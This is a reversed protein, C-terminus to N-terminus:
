QDLLNLVQKHLHPAGCAIVNGESELTLEKGSWDTIIGGAGKIIPALACFDHPKLDAELVIDVTGNALLGYSYCDGGYVTYRAKERVKEFKDRDSGKFLNPSTTCLTTEELKIRNRTKSKTNNFITDMREAGIWREGLIPQDIIGLIPKRNELLAILTGFTPRGIMFSSTGDIPDLIWVYTAKENTPDYEEGIIGHDPFKQKILARLIREIEKDAQTVPSDDAKAEVPIPKRWMQRTVQAAATALDEAFPIIKELIKADM